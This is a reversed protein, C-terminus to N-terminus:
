NTPSLYCTSTPVVRLPLLALEEPRSWLLTGSTDFIGHTPSGTVMITDRPEAGIVPTIAMSHAGDISIYIANYRGAELDALRSNVCDNVPGILTERAAPMRRLETSSEVIGRFFDRQLAPFTRGQLEASRSAVLDVFQVDAFSSCVRERPAPATACSVLLLSALALTFGTKM